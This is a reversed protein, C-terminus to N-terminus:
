RELCHAASLIWHQDIASGGCKLDQEKNDRILLLAQHPYQGLKAIRGGFIRRASYVNELSLTILLSLSILLM